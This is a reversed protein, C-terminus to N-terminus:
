EPGLEYMNVIKGGTQTDIRRGDSELRTRFCTRCASEAGLRNYRAQRLEAETSLGLRVRRDVDAEVSRTHDVNARLTVENAAVSGAIGTVVAIVQPMIYMHDSNASIVYTVSGSYYSTKKGSNDGKGLSEAVLDAREQRMGIFCIGEDYAISTFDFEVVDAAFEYCLAIGHEPVSAPALSALTIEQQDGLDGYATGASFIGVVAITILGNM